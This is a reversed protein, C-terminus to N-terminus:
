HQDHNITGLRGKDDITFDPDNRFAKTIEEPLTTWYGPPQYSYHFCFRNNLNDYLQFHFRWVHFQNLWHKWNM